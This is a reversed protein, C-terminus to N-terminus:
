GAYGEYRAYRIVPRELEVIMAVIPCAALAHCWRRQLSSISHGMGCDFSRLRDRVAKACSLVSTATTSIDKDLQPENGADNRADLPMGQLLQLCVLLGQQPQQLAPPIFRRLGAARDRADRNSKFSAAVAEPQRSPQFRAVDFGM